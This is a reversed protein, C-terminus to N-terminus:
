PKCMWLIMQPFCIPKHDALVLVFISNLKIFILESKLKVTEDENRPFTRMFGQKLACHGQVDLANELRRSTGLGQTQVSLECVCYVSDGSIVVGLAMLDGLAWETWFFLNFLMACSFVSRLRARSDLYKCINSFSTLFNSVVSVYM